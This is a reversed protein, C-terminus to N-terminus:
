GHITHKKENVWIERANQFSYSLNNFLFYFNSMENWETSTKIRNWKMTLRAIWLLFFMSFQFLILNCYCLFPFWLEYFKLVVIWNRDLSIYTHFTRGVISSTIMCQMQCNSTQFVMKYMCKSYVMIYISNNCLHLALLTTTVPRKFQFERENKIKWMM